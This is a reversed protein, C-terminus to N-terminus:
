HLVQGGHGHVEGRHDSCQGRYAANEPTSADRKFFDSPLPFFFSHNSPLLQYPSQITRKYQLSQENSKTATRSVELSDHCELCYNARVVVYREKWKRTQDFFLVAEEYLVEGEETAEQNACCM